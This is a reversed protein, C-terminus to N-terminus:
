DGKLPMEMSPNDDSKVNSLSNLGHSKFLLVLNVPISEEVGKKCGVRHDADEGTDHYSNGGNNARRIVRPNNVKGGKERDDLDKQYYQHEVPKPPSVIEKAKGWLLCIICGIVWVIGICLVIGIFGLDDAADRLLDNVKRKEGLDDKQDDSPSSSLRVLRPAGVGKEKNDSCSNM